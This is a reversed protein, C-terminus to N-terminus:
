ARKIIQIHFQKLSILNQLIVIIPIEASLRLSCLSFSLNEAGTETRIM